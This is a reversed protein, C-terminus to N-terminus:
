SFRRGPRPVGSPCCTKASAPVAGNGAVTGASAPDFGLRLSEPWAGPAPPLALEDDPPNDTGLGGPGRPAPDVVDDDDEPPDVPPVVVDFPPVVLVEVPPVVVVDLPPVVLVDVPPVVVVDLPPVVLVDVPPVVVVDLPPVVVGTGATGSGPVQSVISTPNKMIPPIMLRRGRDNCAAQLLGQQLL